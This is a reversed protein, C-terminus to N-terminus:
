YLRLWKATSAYEFENNENKYDDNHQAVETAVRKAHTNALLFKPLKLRRVLELADDSLNKTTAQLDSLFDFVPIGSDRDHLLLRGSNQDINVENCHQIKLLIQKSREVKGGSLGSSLLDLVMKDTKVVLKAKDALTDDRTTTLKQPQKLRSNLNM